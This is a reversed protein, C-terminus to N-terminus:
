LLGHCFSNMFPDGWFFFWFFFVIQVFWAALLFFWEAYYRSTKRPQRSSAIKICRMDHGNAGLGRHAEQTHIKRGTPGFCLPFAPPPQNTPASRQPPQQQQLGGSECITSFAVPSLISPNKYTLGPPKHIKFLSQKSLNLPISQSHYCGAVLRVVVHCNQSLSTPEVSALSPTKCFESPRIWHNKVVPTKSHWINVVELLFLEAFDVRFPGWKFCM